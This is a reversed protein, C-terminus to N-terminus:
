VDRETAPYVLDLVSGSACRCSISFPSSPTCSNPLPTANRTVPVTGKCRTIWGSLQDPHDGLTTSESAGAPRSPHHVNTARVPPATRFISTKTSRRQGPRNKWFTPEPHTVSRRTPLVAWLRRRRKGELDPRSGSPGIRGGAATMSKRAPWGRRRRRSLRGM